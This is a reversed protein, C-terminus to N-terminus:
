AAVILSTAFMIAFTFYAESSFADFTYYPEVFVFNFAAVSLAAAVVFPGLGHRLATAVVATMYVLTLTDPDTLSRFPLAVADGGGGDGGGLSLRGSIDPRAASDQPIRRARETM